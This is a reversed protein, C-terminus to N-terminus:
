EAPPVEGAVNLLPPTRFRRDQEIGPHCHICVIHCPWAISQAWDQRRCWGCKGPLPGTFLLTACPGWTVGQDDVTTKVKPKPIKSLPPMKKKPM